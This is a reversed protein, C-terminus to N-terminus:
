SYFRSFVANEVSIPREGRGKEGNSFFEGDSYWYHGKELESILQEDTFKTLLDDM